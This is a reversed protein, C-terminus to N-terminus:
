KAKESADETSPNNWGSNEPHLCFHHYGFPLAYQCEKQESLCYYLHATLFKTRCGKTQKDTLGTYDRHMVNENEQCSDTRNPSTLHDPSM